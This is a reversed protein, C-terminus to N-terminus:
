KVVWGQYDNENSRALTAMYEPMGGLWSLPEVKKGPINAGQYWSKAQPFLSNHWCEGLRKCWDEEAEEKAEFYTKSKETLGRLTESIYEAQFQTCCPGNAFATPAHVGCLYFMNPFNNMAIGMATRTGDKWKQAITTGDIGRINLQALSGNLSDFGTALILVDFEVEGGKTRIGKETVELIPSENVDIIDVHPLSFVEYVNQELCARKAGWPHPPIEPALLERKKIDPIRKCVTKRWFKYAEDNAKQNYFLDKYNGLWYHFGGHKNMLNDYHAEREEPTDDFTNKEEFAYPFAGFTKRTKAFEEEYKGEAKKKAEEEPDLLRQNMPLALNPTRQYVTLHNVVPGITQIVQIGTAGTGVIGVRKNKLNVGHQPWVATHYTDGKFNSLGAFPPTFRRSAFGICLIFWRCYVESGDACEVLWQNRQKDFTAGDVQKDFEIDKRVDWKKEVHEFYRRIEKGGPYKETFTFDEYLEKDYLQYIPSPSDVRAGPYNNWYWVGGSKSGKEYIKCKLGQKRLKNLMTFSGFGAGVLLVDLEEQQISGM